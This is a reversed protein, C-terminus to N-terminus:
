SAVKIIKVADNNLLEPAQKNFHSIDYKTGSLVAAAKTNDSTHMLAHFRNSGLSLRSVKLGANVLLAKIEKTDNASMPYATIVNM